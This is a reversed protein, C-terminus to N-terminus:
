EGEYVKKFDVQELAKLITRDAVKINASQMFVIGISNYWYILGGYDICCPGTPEGEIDYDIAYKNIMQFQEEPIGTLISNKHQLLRVDRDLTNLVLSTVTLSEDAKGAAELVSRLSQGEVIQPDPNAKSIEFVEGYEPLEGALEMVIAKIKNPVFETRIWVGWRPAMILLGNDIDGITLRTKYAKKVLSTFKSINLFM